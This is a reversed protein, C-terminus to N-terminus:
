LELVLRASKARSVCPCFDGRQHDAASLCIDRHDAEGELLRVTCVGCDGRRCDFLPDLGAAIMVDLISQGAPVTLTRKSATLEVEFASQETDDSPAQFLESHVQAEPWGLAFAQARVANILGAPGCVYVHRNPQPDGLTPGLPIGRRPDGADFWCTAGPLAQVADHYAMSSADRAAYHLTYRKGAAALARAMALIPTIGIGGAILLHEAGDESLAFDNRPPNVDLEDGVALQHVWRSGGTSTEELLVAIEYHHACDTPNVLSYARRQMRGGIPVQLGIHAGAEFGPVPAGDVAELLLRRIKPTLADIRAVRMRITSM